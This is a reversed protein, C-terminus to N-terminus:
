FTGFAARQPTLTRLKKMLKTYYINKGSPLIKPWIDRFPGLFQKYSSCGSATFHCFKALLPLFSTSFYKVIIKSHFWVNKQLKKLNKEFTKQQL